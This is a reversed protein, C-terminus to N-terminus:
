SRVDVVGGRKSSRAQKVFDNRKDRVWKMLALRYDKYRNTKKRGMWVEMDMHQEEVFQLPVEYKDAIDQLVVPTLDEFRSFERKTVNNDNNVNNTTTVQQNSAPQKSTAGNTIRQYRDYNNITIYSFESTIRITIENTLKLKNLATRIQM